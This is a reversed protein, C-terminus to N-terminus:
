QKIGTTPSTSGTKLKIDDTTIATEDEMQFSIKGIIAEDTVEVIPENVTEEKYYENTGTREDEGLISYVMRLEGQTGEVELMDMYKEFGNVYTFNSPIDDADNVDIATNTEIDSPTLLATDYQLRLDIGKFNLKRIRVEIILQKERKSNRTINSQIRNKTVQQNQLVQMHKEIPMSVITVM